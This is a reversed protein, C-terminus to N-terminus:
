IIPVLYRIYRLDTVAPRQKALRPSSSYCHNTARLCYCSKRRDQRFCLLLLFPSVCPPCLSSLYLCSIVPFFFKEDVSWRGVKFCPVGALLMRPLESCFASSSAPSLDRPVFRFASSRKLNSQKEKAAFMIAGTGEARGLRRINSYHPRPRTVAGHGGTTGGQRGALM